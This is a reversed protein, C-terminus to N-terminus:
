TIQFLHLISRGSVFQFTAIYHLVGEDFTQGTELLAFNKQEEPKTPDVLAWIVPTEGQLQATLIISGQPMQLSFRHTLPIPWKYVKM